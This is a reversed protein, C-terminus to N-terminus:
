LIGKNLCREILDAGTKIEVNKKRVEPVSSDTEFTIDMDDAINITSSVLSSCSMTQCTM